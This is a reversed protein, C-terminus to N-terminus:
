FFIRLMYLLCLVGVARDTRSRKEQHTLFLFPFNLMPTPNQGGPETFATLIPGDSLGPVPNLGSFSPMGTLGLGGSLGSIPNRTSFNPM